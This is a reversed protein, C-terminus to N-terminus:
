ILMEIMVLSNKDQFRCELADLKSSFKTYIVPTSNSDKTILKEDYNTDQHNFTLNNENQRKSAYNLM